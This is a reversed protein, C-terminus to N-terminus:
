MNERILKTIAVTETKHSLSPIEKSKGIIRLPLM